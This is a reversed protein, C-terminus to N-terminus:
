IGKERPITTTDMAQTWVAVAPDIDSGQERPVCRPCLPMQSAREIEDWDGTGHMDQADEGCLTAVTGFPVLHCYYGPRYFKRDAWEELPRM